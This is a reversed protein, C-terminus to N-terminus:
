LAMKAPLASSAPWHANRNELTLGSPHIGSWTPEVCAAETSRCTRSLRRRVIAFTSLEIRFWKPWSYLMSANPLVCYPTSPRFLSRSRTTMTPIEKINHRRPLSFVVPGQCSPLIRGQHRDSHMVEHTKRGRWRIISEFNVHQLYKCSVTHRYRPRNLQGSIIAVALDAGGELTGAELYELPDGSRSNRYTARWM